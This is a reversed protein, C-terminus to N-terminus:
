GDGTPPGGGGDPDPVAVVGVSPDLLYGDDRRVLLGELGHKRLTHLAMHLRSPGSDGQPRQGPWGAEILAELPLPSGPARLRQEVLRKLVLRPAARKSFDVWPGGPPQFRRADATVRLARPAGPPGGAALEPRVLRRQFEALARELGRLALRVEYLSDAPVDPSTSPAFARSMRGLAAELHRAVSAADGEAGARRARALDVHGRALELLAGLARAGRRGRTREAGELAEHAGTLDDCAAAVRAALCLDLGENARDGLERHLALARAACAGAEEYRGEDAYAVGWHLLCLAVNWGRGEREWLEASRAFLPHALEPRGALLEYAGLYASLGYAYGYEGAGLSVRQAEELFARASPMSRVLEFIGLTGLARTELVPDGLSRAGALARELEDRSAFPAGFVAGANAASFFPRSARRARRTAPV